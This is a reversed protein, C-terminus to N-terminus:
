SRRLPRAVSRPMGRGPSTPVGASNGSPTTTPAAPTTTAPTVTTTTPTTIPNQVPPLANMPASPNFKIRYAEAIEAQEAAAKFLFPAYSAADAVVAALKKFANGNVDTPTVGSVGVADTSAILNTKLGM